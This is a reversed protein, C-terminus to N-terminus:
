HGSYCLLALQGPVTVSDITALCMIIKYMLPAYEVGNFIYKNRYALLRAQTDATLSKNLCISMMTNNQKARTQADAQGPKCFDRVHLKSPPRALKTMTRSSTLLNVLATSLHPSRSPDKIGTWWLLMTTSLKLLFSPKTPHWPMDMPFHRTTLHMAGKNLYPQGEKQWIASLDDTGLSQPMDVFVVPAAGTPPAAAAAPVTATSAAVQAQLTAIFALLKANTPTAGAM